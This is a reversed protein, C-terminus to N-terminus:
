SGHLHVQELGRREREEPGGGDMRVLLHGGLGLEESVERHTLSARYHLDRHIRSSISTPHALQTKSTGKRAEQKARHM